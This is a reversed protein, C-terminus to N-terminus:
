QEGVSRLLTILDGETNAGHAGLCLSATALPVCRTILDVRDVGLTDDTSCPDGGRPSFGHQLDRQPCVLTM